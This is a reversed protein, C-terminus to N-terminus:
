SQHQVGSSSGAFPDFCTADRIFFAVFCINISYYRKQKIRITTYVTYEKDIQQYVVPHVINLNSNINDSIPPETEVWHPCVNQIGREM